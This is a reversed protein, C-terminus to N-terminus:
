TIRWFGLGGPYMMSVIPIVVPVSTSSTTAHFLRRNTFSDQSLWFDFSFSPSNFTRNCFYFECKCRVVGHFLTRM